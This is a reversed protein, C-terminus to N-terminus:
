MSDQFDIRVRWLFSIYIKSCIGNIRSHQSDELFDIPEGCRVYIITYYGGALRHNDVIREM